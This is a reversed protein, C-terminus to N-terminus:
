QLRISTLFEDPLVSAEVKKSLEGRPGSVSYMRRKPRSIRIGADAALPVDGIIQAFQLSDLVAIGDNNCVFMSYFSRFKRQLQRIEEGQAVTMTFIWPTLRSSSHKVYLVTQENVVYACNMDESFLRIHAGKPLARLVRVLVSGHYQEVKGIM